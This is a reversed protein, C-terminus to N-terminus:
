ALTINTISTSYGVAVGVKDIDFDFSGVFTGINSNSLTIRGTVQKNGATTGTIEYTPRSDPLRAYTTFDTQAAAPIASSLNGFNYPSSGMGSVTVSGQYCVLDATVTFQIDSDSANKKVHFAIETLKYVMHGNQDAQRTITVNMYLNTIINFKDQKIPVTWRDVNYDYELRVITGNNIHHNADGSEGTLRKSLLVMCITWNSGTELPANDYPNGSYSARYDSAIASAFKATNLHITADLNADENPSDWYSSIPNDTTVAYHFSGSSGYTMLICPYYGTIDGFMVKPQVCGDEIRTFLKFDIIKGESAQVDTSPIPFGDLNKLFDYIVLVNKAFHHYGKFDSKRLCCSGDLLPKDHTWKQSTPNGKLDMDEVYDSYTGAWKKIGGGTKFGNIVRAVARDNDTLPEIKTNYVPKIGSWMNVNPSMCLTAVDSSNSSLCQQIDGIGVPQSLIGTTPNYAM